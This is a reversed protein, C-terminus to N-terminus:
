RNSGILKEIDEKTLLFTKSNFSNVTFPELLRLSHEDMLADAEDSCNTKVFLRGKPRLYRRAEELFMMWNYATWPTPYRDFVTRMATILDYPKTVEMQWQKNARIELYVPSRIKLIKWAAQYFPFKDYYTSNCKHQLNQCIWSFLGIGSGIDLIRLNRTETLGLFEAVDLKEQLYLDLKQVYKGTHNYFEDTNRPDDVLAAQLEDLPLSDKINELELEM